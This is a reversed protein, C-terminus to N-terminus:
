NLLRNLLSKYIWLQGDLWPSPLFSIDCTQHEWDREFLRSFQGPVEGGKIELMTENNFDFSYENWNTSGVLFTHGDILAAKAHMANEGEKMQYWRVPVAAQVLWSAPELNFVGPPAWGLPSLHSIHNPDLLIRVAVGRARAAVLADVVQRDELEFMMVEISRVAQGIVRLVTSRAEHGAFGTPIYRIETAGSPMILPHPPWPGPLEPGLPTAVAFSRLIDHAMARAANGQVMVSVEHGNLREGCFNMSGVFAREEDAVIVKNHDEPYQFGVQRALATRPFLRVPIGAARLADLVPQTFAKNAPLTGLDPDLLVRVVVGARQREALLAVLALPKEGGLIYYDVAISRKAGKVVAQIAQWTDTGDEILQAEGLYSSPQAVAPLAGMAGLIATLLLCRSLQRLM